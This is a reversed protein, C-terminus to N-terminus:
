GRKSLTISIVEGERLIGTAVTATRGSMSPSIDPLWQEVASGTRGTYERDGVRQITLVAVSAHGNRGSGQLGVTFPTWNEKSDKLM